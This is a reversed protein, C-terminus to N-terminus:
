RTQVGRGCPRSCASWETWSGWQGDVEAGEVEAAMVVCRGSRCWGDEEDGCLTGEAPPNGQTLCRGHLECRAFIGRIQENM